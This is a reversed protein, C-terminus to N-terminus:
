VIQQFHTTASGHRKSNVTLTATGQTSGSRIVALARGHYTSHVNDDFRETTAMAGNGLGLLTAPGTVLVELDDDDHHEIVGDVDALEVRVFLLDQEDGKLVKSKDYSLQVSTPGASCTVSRSTEKGNAYSIAIVQGPEYKTTFKATFNRKFGAPGRGLSRGNLLLEVEDGPSIVEIYAPLGECGKWAWSLVADSFRWTSSRFSKRAIDPPRVTLVPEDLVGWAARALYAPRGLVGTFDAAGVGSGLCPYPKWFRGVRYWPVDYDFIGIGAEGLFDWGTWMFDGILNPLRQVKDWNEVVDDPITETGVMLRYPHLRQDKDYRVSGYNYGAIDMGAFLDQTAADCRSLLPCWKCLLFLVSFLLNIVESSIKPLGKPTPPTTSSDLRKTPWSLAAMPLNVAITCPRTPDKSRTWDALCHATAVGYATAPETNENGVSYMIVSPHRRANAVMADIDGQWTEHFHRSDDGASKANYWYDSYEDMVYMGVEDCADLLAAAAPNHSARVANFGIQKLIQIRWLEAARFTAAGIVGSDHHICAGRLLTAQGNVLIGKGAVWDLTRLGYKFTETDDGVRVVCDYLTPSEASWLLPRDVQLLCEIQSGRTISSVQASRKGARNLEISVEVEQHDPNNLLITAAVVAVSASPLSTKLDVGDPRLSARSRAILHVPRYIGAGTYWRAAPLDTNEAFVEITNTGTDRLSKDIRVEFKRYGSLSGGVDQGNILIRSQHFIGGFCLSLEKGKLHSPTPWIKRYAYSGGAFYGQDFGSPADASRPEGIMADHPLTVRQFDANPSRKFEWGVNFPTAISEEM